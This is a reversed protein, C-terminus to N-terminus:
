KALEALRDWAAAESWDPVMLTAPQTNVRMVPEPFDTQRELRLGCGWGLRARMERAYREAFAGQTEVYGSPHLAAPATGAGIEELYRRYAAALLDVHINDRVYAPTRVSATEGAAWCRMLYAAFRPEELPGFPNAIVFRGFRVGADAAHWAAIERTLGKSLGYPSFARLPLTGVGEQPAFVTSTLVMAGLTGSRLVLDLNRTNAAVAGLIDFAPNRYDGVQAAHHALIDFGEGLLDLFAPGGFPCDPVVRVLGELRRVREARVDGAYANRPRMLPAVVDHGAEALARAFWFGTFSSAGTLLVRM